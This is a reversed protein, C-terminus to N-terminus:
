RMRSQELDDNQCAIAGESLKNECTGHDNPASFLDPIKSPSMMKLDETDATM